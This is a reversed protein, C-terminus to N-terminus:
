DVPKIEIETHDVIGGSQYWTNDYFTADNIQYSIMGKEPVRYIFQAGVPFIMENGSDTVYRMILMGELCGDQSCPYDELGM